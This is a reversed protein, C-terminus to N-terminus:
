YFYYENSIAFAYYVHEPTVDPHSNIFNIMWTKEAETPIRVFFRQYTEKVFEETENRMSEESPLIINPDNMFKSVLTEYAVQKDGISTIVDTARVLQNASMAKQYLNAYLINLYQETTKAKKGSLDVPQILVDEVGYYYQEEKCGGALLGLLLIATLIRFTPMNM